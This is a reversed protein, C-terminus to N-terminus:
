APKRLVSLRQHVLGFRAQLPYALCLEIHYTSVDRRITRGSSNVWIEVDTAGSGTNEMELFRWGEAKLREPTPGTGPQWYIV